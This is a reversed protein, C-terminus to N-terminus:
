DEDTLLKLDISIGLILKYIFLYIVYIKQINVNKL